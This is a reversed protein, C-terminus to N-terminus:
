LRGRQTRDFYVSVILLPNTTHNYIVRLVRDERELISALAHRLEPDNRDAETKRPHMLVRVIWEKSIERAYIVEAAHGTLAYPFDDLM